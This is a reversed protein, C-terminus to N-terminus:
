GVILAPHRLTNPPPLAATACPFFTPEPRKDAAPHFLRALTRAASVRGHAASGDSMQKLVSVRGSTRRDRRLCSPVSINDHAAFPQKRQTINSGIAWLLPLPSMYIYIKKKQNLKSRKVVLFHMNPPLGGVGTRQLKRSQRRHQTIHKAM